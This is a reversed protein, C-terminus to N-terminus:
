ELADTGPDLTVTFYKAIAEVFAPITAEEPQIRIQLNNEQATSATIPGIVACPLTRLIEPDEIMEVFNKVTSSSTFTVLDFPETLARQLLQRNGDPLVTEYVAITDVRAGADELGERLIPRYDRPTVMLIPIGAINGHYRELLAELLGEAQYRAPMLDAQLGEDELASATSPGVAALCPM